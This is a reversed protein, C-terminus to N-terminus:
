WSNGKEQCLLTGYLIADAGRLRDVDVRGAHKSGEPAMDLKKSPASQRNFSYWGDRIVLLHQEVFRFRLKM